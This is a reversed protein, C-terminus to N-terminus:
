SLGNECVAGNTPNAECPSLVVALVVKPLARRQRKQYFRSRCRLKSSYIDHSEIAPLNTESLFYKWKQGVACTHVVKM